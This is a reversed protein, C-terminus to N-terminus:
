WIYITQTFVPEGDKKAEITLESPVLSKGKYQPTCFYGNVKGQVLLTEVMDDYRDKLEVITKPVYLRNGASEEGNFRLPMCYLPYLIGQEALEVAKESSDVETFGAPTQQKMKSRIKFFDFLGM